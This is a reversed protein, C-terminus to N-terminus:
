WGIFCGRGADLGPVGAASFLCGFGIVMWVWAHLCNEWFANTM